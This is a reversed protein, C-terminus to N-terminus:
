EPSEPTAHTSSAPRPSGIADALTTLIVMAVTRPEEGYVTELDLTPHASRIAAIMAAPDARSITAYIMEPTAHPDLAEMLTLVERDRDEITVALHGLMTEWLLEDSQQAGRSENSSM